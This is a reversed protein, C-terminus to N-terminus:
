VPDSSEAFPACCGGGRKEACAMDITAVTGMEAVASSKYLLTYPGYNVCIPRFCCFNTRDCMHFLLLLEATYSLNAVTAAVFM